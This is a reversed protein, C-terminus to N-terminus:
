RRRGRNSSICTVVLLLLLATAPEPVVVAVISQVSVVPFEGNDKYLTSLTGDKSLEFGTYLGPDLFKYYTGFVRGSMQEVFVDVTSLGPTMRSTSFIPAGSSIDYVHMSQAHTDAVYLEDTIENIAIDYPTVTEPLPFSGLYEGGANFKFLRDGVGVNASNLIYVDGSATADIGSPFVLNTHSFTGSINGVQDLRFSTRPASSQGGFTTYVNGAVDSELSQRNPYSGALRSVDSFQGLFNGALDYRNIAGGFEAVLLGTGVTTLSLGLRTEPLDWREELTGAESFRYLESNLQSNVGFVSVPIGDAVSAGVLTLIVTAIRITGQVRNGLGTANSMM